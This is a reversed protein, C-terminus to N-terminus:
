PVDLVTGYSNFLQASLAEIGGGRKLYSNIIKGDKMYMAPYKRNMYGLVLGKSTSSHVYTVTEEADVSLVIGAHTLKETNSTTRDFMIIDGTNPLSNTYIKKYRSLTAYITKVGGSDLVAQKQFVAISSSWYVASIYGSCDFRFKKSEKSLPHTLLVSENYKYNKDLYFRAWKDLSNRIEEKQKDTIEVANSMLQEQYKKDYSYIQGFLNLSLLFTYVFFICLRM